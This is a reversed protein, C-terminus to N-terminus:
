DLSIQKALALNENFLSKYKMTRKCTKKKLAQFSWDGNITITSLAPM